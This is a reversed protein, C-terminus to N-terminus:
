ALDDSLRRAPDFARVFQLADPPILDYCAVSHGGKILQLPDDTQLEETLVDILAPFSYDLSVRRTAVAETLVRMFVTKQGILLGNRVPEVYGTPNFKTALCVYKGVVGKYATGMRDCKGPDLGEKKISEWATASTLHYYPGRANGCGTISASPGKVYSYKAM